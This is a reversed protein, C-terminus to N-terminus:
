RGEREYVVLFVDFLAFVEGDLEEMYGSEVCAVCDMSALLSLFSLDSGVLREGEEREREYLPMVAVTSEGFVACMERFRHTSIIGWELRDPHIDKNELYLRIKDNVKEAREDM